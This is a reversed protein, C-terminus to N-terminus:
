ISRNPSLEEYFEICAQAFQEASGQSARVKLNEREEFSMALAAEISQCIQTINGEDFTRRADNIVFPIAGSRSGVAPVGAAMSEVLVRGYQEKWFDITLSPLALVNFSHMYSALSKLGMAPLIRVREELKLNGIKQRLALEEPGAGILVLCYSQDMMGLAEILDGIGKEPVFRGVYAIVNSNAPFGWENKLNTLDEPRASFLSTDVGWWQEKIPLEWGSRIIVEACEKYPVLAGEILRRRLPQLLCDILLYRATKRIFPWLHTLPHKYFWKFPPEQPINEFAYCVVIAKTRSMRAALGILLTNLSYAEDVVIVYQPKRSKMIDLLDTFRGWKPRLRSSRVTVQEFQPFYNKKTSQASSASFILDDGRGSPFVVTLNTVDKNRSFAEFLYQSHPLGADHFYILANM